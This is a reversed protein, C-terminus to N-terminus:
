LLQLQAIAQQMNSFLISITAIVIRAYPLIEDLLKKVSEYIQSLFGAVSEAAIRLVETAARRTREMSFMAIVSLGLLLKIWLPLKSLKKVLGKVLNAGVRALECAFEFLARLVLLGVQVVARFLPLLFRSSVFFSFSGKKFITILQRIKGVKWVRVEPQEMIDKDATIIGHAKLSFNLAVFPVDDMDRKGVTALGFLNALFDNVNTIMIRPLFLEKWVETLRSRNLRKEKAILPIKEEVEEILKPPAHLSLFAGEALEYLASKGKKAFSILESLITNTDVVLKLSMEVTKGLADSINKQFCSQLHHILQPPFEGIIKELSQDIEQYNPFSIHSM